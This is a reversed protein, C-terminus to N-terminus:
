SHGCVVQDRKMAMLKHWERIHDWQTSQKGDKWETPIEAPENWTEWLVNPYRGFMPLVDRWFEEARKRYKSTPSDGNDAPRWDGMLKEIHWDVVAYLNSRIAKKVLKKTMDPGKEGDKNKFEWCNTDETVGMAFRAITACWKTRTQEVFKEKWLHDSWCHWFWSMGRLSVGKGDAGCTNEQCGDTGRVRLTGFAPGDIAECGEGCNEADGDMAMKTRENCTRWDEDENKGEPPVCIKYGKDFGLNVAKPAATKAPPEPTAAAGTPDGEAAGPVGTGDGPTGSGSSSSGEPTVPSMIEPPTHDDGDGGGAPPSVSNQNEGPTGDAVSPQMLPTGDLGPPSIEEADFQYLIGGAKALGHYTQGPAAVGTKLQMGERIAM